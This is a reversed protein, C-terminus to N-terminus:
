SSMRVPWVSVVSIELVKLVSLVLVVVGTTGTGFGRLLRLVGAAGAGFGRLLLLRDEEDESEDEM